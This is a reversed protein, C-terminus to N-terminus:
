TPTSMVSFEWEALRLGHPSYQLSCLDTTVPKNVWKIHSKVVMELVKIYATPVSVSVWYSYPHWLFLVWQECCRLGGCVRATSMIECLRHLWRSDRRNVKDSELHPLSNKLPMDIRILWKIGDLHTHTHIYSIHPKVLFSVKKLKM